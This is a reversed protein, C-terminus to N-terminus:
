RRARQRLAARLWLGLLGAAALAALLGSANGLIQALAVVDDAFLAGLGVYLTVWIM